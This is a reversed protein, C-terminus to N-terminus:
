LALRKIISSLIILGIAATGLSITQEEIQVVRNSPRQFYCVSRDRLRSRRMVIVPSGAMRPRDSNSQGHIAAASISPHEMFEFGFGAAQPTNDLRRSRTMEALSAATWHCRARPSLDSSRSKETASNAPMMKVEDGVCLVHRNHRRRRERQQM